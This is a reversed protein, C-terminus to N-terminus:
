GNGFKELFQKIDPPIGETKLLEVVAREESKKQEQAVREMRDSRHRALYKEINGLNLREGSHSVDRLSKLFDSEDEKKLEDYLAEAVEVEVPYGTLLSAKKLKSMFLTKDIM